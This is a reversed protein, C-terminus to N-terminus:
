TDTDYVDSDSQDCDSVASGFDSDLILEVIDRYKHQKSNSTMDKAPNKSIHLVVLVSVQLVLLLCLFPQRRVILM